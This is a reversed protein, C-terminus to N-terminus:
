GSSAAACLGDAMSEEDSKDSGGDESGGDDGSETKDLDGVSDGRM